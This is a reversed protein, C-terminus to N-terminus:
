VNSVVVADRLWVWENLQRIWVRVAAYQLADNSLFVSSFCCAEFEIM